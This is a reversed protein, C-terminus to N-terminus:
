QLSCEFLGKCPIQAMSISKKAVVVVVVVMMMMAAVKSLDTVFQSLKM